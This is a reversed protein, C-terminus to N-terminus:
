ICALFLVLFEGIVGDEVMSVQNEPAESLNALLGAAQIHIDEDVCRIAKLVRRLIKRKSTQLIM